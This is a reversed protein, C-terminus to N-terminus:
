PASLLGSTRAYNTLQSNLPNLVAVPSGHKAFAHSLLTGFQDAWYGMVPPYNYRFDVAASMQRYVTGIKQRGYYPWAESLAPLRTGAIDAPYLGGNTWDLAIAKPNTNIWTAFIMSAHPHKTQTTIADSSGGWDGSAVHGLNWQPLAVIRWKGADKPAEQQLLLPEWAAAIVTAVKNQAYLRDTQITSTVNNPVWGKATLTQVMSMVRKWPTTNVTFHWRGHIVKAVHGNLQWALGKYLSQDTSNFQINFDLAPAKQHLVKADQEFMAWTRPVSLHYKKFITTNYALAMPGADQPIGYVSNAMSVLGWSWPEFDKKYAIAGYKALNLLGGTAAITSLESYPLQVVDPAGVRAKITTLLKEYEPGGAGVNRYRVRITPYAREFANVAKQIGPVWSWFTITVHKHYAPYRYSVMHRQRATLTKPSSAPVAGTLMAIVGVMSAAVLSYKTRMPVEKM